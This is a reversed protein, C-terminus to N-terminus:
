QLSHGRQRCMSSVTSVISHRCHLSLVRHTDPGSLLINVVFVFLAPLAATVGALLATLWVLPDAFANDSVGTSRSVCLLSSGGGVM